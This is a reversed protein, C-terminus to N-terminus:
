VTGLACSFGHPVLFVRDRDLVGKMALRHHSYLAEEQELCRMSIHAMVTLGGGIGLQEHLVDLVAPTELSLAVFAIVTLWTTTSVHLTSAVIEFCRRRLYNSFDFDPPLDESGAEAAAKKATAGGYEHHEVTM